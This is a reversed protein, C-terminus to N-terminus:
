LDLLFSEFTGVGSTTTEQLSVVYQEPDNDLFEEVLKIGGDISSYARLNKDFRAYCNKNLKQDEPRFLGMVPLKSYIAEFFATSPTDCLVREAVPFWSMLKNSHFSINDYKKEKLIEKMLDFKQNPLFYGKWIFQYDKRRSMFDVLSRHWKVYEMPFPQGKAVPRNPCPACMVPVFLVIPKGNNSRFGKRLYKFKLARRCRKQFHPSEFVEPFGLNFEKLLKREHEVEEKSNVFYVDFFRTLKFLRSKGELADVGHIFYASKTKVSHRAATVAAHEELTLLSGLTVFDIDYKNYFNIFVPIMSLIKPCIERLFLEFRSVLVSSVDLGCQANVWGMIQGNCLRHLVKEWDSSNGISAGLTEDIDGIKWFGFLSYKRISGNEYFFYKYHHRKENGLFDQISTLSNLVFINSEGKRSLSDSKFLWRYGYFINRVMKLFDFIRRPVVKKILERSSKERNHFPKLNTDYGEGLGDELIVREFEIGEVECIPEILRSYTSEVNKFSLVHDILDPGPERTLFVIKDPEASEIFRRIIRVSLIVNDVCYKIWYYYISALNANLRKAEPFVDKIFEDFDRFWLLQQKLFADTDGRIEGSRYFDEFTIYNHGFKELKYIAVYTLAVITCDKPLSLGENFDEILCYQM